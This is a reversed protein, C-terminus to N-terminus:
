KPPVQDDLQKEEGRPQNKTWIDVAKSYQTQINEWESRLGAAAQEMESTAAQNFQDLKSKFSSVMENLRTVEGNFEPFKVVNDKAKVSLDSLKGQFDNLKNTFEEKVTPQEMPTSPNAPNPNNQSYGTFALFIFTGAILVKLIKNKM